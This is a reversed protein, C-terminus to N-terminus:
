NCTTLTRSNDTDATQGEILTTTWPAVDVMIEPRADVQVMGTPPPEAVALGEGIELARHNRPATTGFRAWRRSSTSVSLPMRTSCHSCQHVRM